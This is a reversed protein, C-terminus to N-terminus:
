SRMRKYDYDADAPMKGFLDVVEMQKHRQIFEQLATHVTEKKTKFGGIKLAEKLLRDDLALNTSM